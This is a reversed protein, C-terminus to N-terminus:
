LLAAPATVGLGPTALAKRPTEARIITHRAAMGPRVEHSAAAIKLGAVALLALAVVLSIMLQRRAMLQVSADLPADDRDMLLAGGDSREYRGAINLRPAAPPARSKDSDFV